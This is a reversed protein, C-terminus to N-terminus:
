ATPAPMPRYQQKEAGDRDQRGDSRLAPRRDDRYPKAPRRRRLLAHFLRAGDHDRRVEGVRKSGLYQDALYGGILPTLYVLATFGGYLGTAARDGFLFHKTLYLTLLARMGYYGFREWMETTFLRALQRPHGFWTEEAAPNVHRSIRSARITRPRPTWWTNRERFEQAGGDFAAAQIRASVLPLAGPTFVRAGRRSSRAHEVVAGGREREEGRAARALRAVQDRGAGVVACSAASGPSRRACARDRCARATASRPRAWRGARPARSAHDGVGIAGLPGCAARSSISASSCNACWAGASTTTSDDGLASLWMGTHSCSNDAPAAHM